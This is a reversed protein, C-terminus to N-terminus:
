VWGVKKMALWAVLAPFIFTWIPQEYGALLICVALCSFVTWGAIAEFFEHIAKRAIEQALCVKRHEEELQKKLRNLETKESLRAMLLADNKEEDIIIM